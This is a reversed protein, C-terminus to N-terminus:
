EQRAAIHIRYPNVSYFIASILYRQVREKDPLPHGRYLYIILTCAYVSSHAALICM